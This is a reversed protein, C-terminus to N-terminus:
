PFPPDGHGCRLVAGSVLLEFGQFGKGAFARLAALFLLDERVLEVLGMRALFTALFNIEVAAGPLGPRLKQRASTFQLCALVRGFLAAWGEAPFAIPSPNTGYQCACCSKSL